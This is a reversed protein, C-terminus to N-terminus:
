SFCYAAYEGIENGVPALGIEINHISRPPSEIDQMVLNTRDYVRADREDQSPTRRTNVSLPSMAQVLRSAGQTTRRAKHIALEGRRLAVHQVSKRVSQM